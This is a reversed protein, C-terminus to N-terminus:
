PLALIVRPPPSAEELFKLILDTAQAAHTELLFHGGDLIHAEMRPLDELWSQVEAIDFFADHRGWLLLAPPRREKLYATVEDFREVYKGYDAILSCQTEMRGPLSMVRWDEQWVQPAIKAVVDAPVGSIYQDRTGELTLHATAAEENKANPNSWFKKTANWQPGIGSQHANANQIILGGVLDPKRFALQLAVPAGFDHLYLFRQEVGLKELLEEICDAFGAFTANPLVDSAGFGPLDPAVVFAARSIPEILDRFTRSSSPFGHLLLLAKQSRDGASRYALDIGCSLRLKQIPPLAAM